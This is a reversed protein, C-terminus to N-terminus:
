NGHVVTCGEQFIPIYIQVATYTRDVFAVKKIDGNKKATEISNDGVSKVGLINTMCTKGVKKPEVSNDIRVMQDRDSWKTYIGSYVGSSSQSCSAAFLLLLFPLFFKKM